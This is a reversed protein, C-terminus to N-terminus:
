KDFLNLLTLLPLALSKLIFIERGNGLVHLLTLKVSRLKGFLRRQRKTNFALGEIYLIQNKPM